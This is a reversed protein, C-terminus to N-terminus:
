VGKANCDNYFCSIGHMASRGVYVAKMGWAHSGAEETKPRKAPTPERHRLKMTMIMTTTM